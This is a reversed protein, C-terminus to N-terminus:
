LVPIKLLLNKIKLDVSGGQCFSAESIRRLNDPLHIHEFAKDKLAILFWIIATDMIMLLQAEKYLHQTQWRGPDTCHGKINRITLDLHLVRRNDKQKLKFSLHNYQVADNM